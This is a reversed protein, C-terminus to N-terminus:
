NLPMQASRARAAAKAARTTAGIQIYVQQAETLMADGMAADGVYYCLIASEEAAEGRLLTANTLKALRLAEDLEQKSETYKKMERHIMGLVRLAEGEERQDGLRRMVELARSATKEAVAVEGTMAMVLAREYSNFALEREGGIRSFLERSKDFHVDAERLLGLEKCVMAMNHHCGALKYDDALLQYAALARAFSTLATSYECRLWDITALNMTAAATLRHDKATAAIALVQNYTKEAISLRGYEVMINAEVLLTQCYLRDRGRARCRESLSQILSQADSLMGLAYQSKALLFGLEPEQVLDASDVRALQEVITSYAHEESLATVTELLQYREEASLM